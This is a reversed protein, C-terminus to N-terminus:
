ELVHTVQIFDTLQLQRDFGFRQMQPDHSVLLVAAGQHQASSLLLQMFRDRNDPDLSSTPEDALILPPAGILARAIAVRQQQGVSLQHVPKPLLSLPMDLDRLLSQLQQQQHARTNALRKASTHAALLINDAVSLYPLLHLQQHVMGILEARLRDRKPSWCRALDHGALRISGQQPRLIGALLSLFTSKGSGSVGQLLLSEGAALHFHDVQIGQKAKPWAFRLQEVEVLSM